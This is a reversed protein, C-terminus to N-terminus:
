KRFTWKKKLKRGKQKKSAFAIELGLRCNWCKHKQALVKSNPSDFLYGGYRWIIQYLLPGVQLINVAHRLIMDSFGTCEWFFVNCSALEHKWLAGKISSLWTLEWFSYRSHKKGYLVDEMKIIIGCYCRSRLVWLIEPHYKKVMGIESM